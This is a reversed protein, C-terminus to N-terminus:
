GVDDHYRDENDFYFTEYDGFGECCDAILNDFDSLNCKRSPPKEEWVEFDEDRLEGSETPEESMYPLKRRQVYGDRMELTIPRSAFFLKLLSPVPTPRGESDLKMPVASFERALARLDDQHLADILLEELSTDGYRDAVENGLRLIVVVLSIVAGIPDEGGDEGTTAADVLRAVFEAIGYEVDSRLARGDHTLPLLREILSSCDILGDPVIPHELSSRDESLSKIFDRLNFKMDTAEVTNDSAQVSMCGAASAATTPVIIRTISDDCIERLTRPM